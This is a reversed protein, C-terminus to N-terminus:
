LRLYRYYSLLLMSAGMGNRESILNPLLVGPGISASPGFKSLFPTVAMVSPIYSQLESEGATPPGLFLLPDRQPCRRETNHPMPASM